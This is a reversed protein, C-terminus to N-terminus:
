LWLEVMQGDPGFVDVYDFKLFLDEAESIADERNSFERECQHGEHDNWVVRYM